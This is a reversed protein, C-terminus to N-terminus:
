DNKNVNGNIYYDYYPAIIKPIAIVLATGFLCLAFYNGWGFKAIGELTEKDFVGM